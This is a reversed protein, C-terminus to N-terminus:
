YRQIRRGGEELVLVEGGGEGLFWGEEDPTVAICILLM